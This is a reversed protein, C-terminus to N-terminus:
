LFGIRGGVGGFPDRRGGWACLWDPNERVSSTKTMKAMTASKDTAAGLMVLTIFPFFISWAMLETVAVRSSARESARAFPAKTQTAKAWILDVSESLPFSSTQIDVQLTWGSPVRGTSEAAEVLVYGRSRELGFDISPITKLLMLPNALPAVRGSTSESAFYM